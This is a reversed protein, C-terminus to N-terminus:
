NSHSGASPTGGASAVVPVLFQVKQIKSSSPPHRTPRSRRQDRQQGPPLGLPHGRRGPLPQQRGAAVAAAAVAATITTTATAAATTITTTAPAVAPAAPAAPAAPRTRNYITSSM